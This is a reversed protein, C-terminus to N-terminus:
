IRCLRARHAHCKAMCMLMNLVLLPLCLPRSRQKAAGGTGYMVNNSARYLGVSLSTLAFAVVLLGGYLATIELVM